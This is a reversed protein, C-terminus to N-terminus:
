HSEQDTDTGSVPTTALHTWSLKEEASVDKTPPFADPDDTSGITVDMDGPRDTARHYTLPTGCEPCFTRDAGTDTHYQRPNRTTFRFSDIPFILWGVCGSATARRCTDCHCLASLRPPVDAEWRIRGCLCRGTVQRSDAM